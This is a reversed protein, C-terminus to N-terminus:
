TTEHPNKSIPYIKSFLDSQDELWVLFDNQAKKREEELKIRKKDAERYAKYIEIHINPKM